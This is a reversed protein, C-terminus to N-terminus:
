VKGLLSSCGDEPGSLFHEYIEVQMGDLLCKGETVVELAEFRV